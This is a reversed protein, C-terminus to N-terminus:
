DPKVWWHAFGDNMLRGPRTEKALVEGTCRIEAGGGGPQIRVRKGWIRRGQADPLTVVEVGGHQGGTVMEFTASGFGESVRCSLQSDSNMDDWAPVNIQASPVLPRAAAERARREELVPAEMAQVEALLDEAPGRLADAKPIIWEILEGRRRLAEQEEVSPVYPVYRPGDLEELQRLLEDVKAQHADAERTLKAAQDRKEAAQAMVLEQRAEHLQQEAVQTAAEAGEIQFQLDLANQALERSVTGTEDAFVRAGVSARLEALEARKQEAERQWRLVAAELRTVESEATRRAKLAATMTKVVGM